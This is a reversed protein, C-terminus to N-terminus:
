KKKIVIPNQIPEKNIDKFTLKRPMSNMKSLMKNLKELIVTSIPTGENDFLQVIGNKNTAESIEIFDSVNNINRVNAYLEFCDNFIKQGTENKPGKIPSVHVVIEHSAAFDLISQKNDTVYQFIDDPLETNIHVYKDPNIPPPQKRIHLINKIFKFPSINSTKM